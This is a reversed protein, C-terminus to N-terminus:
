KMSHVGFMNGETDKGLVMFGFEGLSTKPQMLEGGAAAIRKQVISCDESHFYVITGGGGAKFGEMKVLAGSAGGAEMDSPFAMMQMTNETPNPLESFEIKLISEYFKKARAMDDVYIEFWVIPNFKNM